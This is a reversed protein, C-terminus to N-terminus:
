NNEAMTVTRSERDLVMGKWRARQVMRDKHESEVQRREQETKCGALRAQHARLEATSMLSQGFVVESSGQDASVPAISAAFASTMALICAFFVFRSM